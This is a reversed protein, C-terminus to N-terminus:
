SGYIDTPVHENGYTLATGIGIDIYNERFFQFNAATNPVMRVWNDKFAELQGIDMMAMKNRAQNCYKLWRQESTIFNINPDIHRYGGLIMRNLIYWFIATKYSVNDPILPFGNDDLALGLYSVGVIGTEFTFHLYGPNMIYSNEYNYPQEGTVSQSIGKHFSKSSKPLPYKPKDAFNALTTTTDPAYAIQILEFLDTPLSLTHSTVEGVIQKKELQNYQGIFEIAEGSWEIADDIWNSDELNLDRYMKAILTAISITSYIM